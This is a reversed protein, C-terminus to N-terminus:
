RLPALREHRPRMARDDRDIGLLRLGPHASLVAEAHGGGGLTADVFLGDPVVSLVEVVREVLVPRHVFERGPDEPAGTEDQM